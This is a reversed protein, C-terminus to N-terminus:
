FVRDLNSRWWELTCRGPNHGRAQPMVGPLGACTPAGSPGAAVVGGDKLIFGGPVMFTRRTFSSLDPLCPAPGSDDM